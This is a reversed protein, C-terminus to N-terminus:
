HGEVFRRMIERAEAEKMERLFEEDLRDKEFGREVYWMRWMIRLARFTLYVVFALVFLTVLLFALVGLLFIAIGM